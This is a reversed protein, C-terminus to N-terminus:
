PNRAGPRLRLPGRMNLDLIEMSPGASIASQSASSVSRRRASIRRSGIMRRMLSSKGMQRPAQVFITSAFPQGILTLCNHDAAREIYYRSDPRMTGYPPEIPELSPPPSNGLEPAPEPTSSIPGPEPRTKVQKALAAVETVIASLDEDIQAPSGSWIPRGNKPRVNLKSLWDFAQWACAKAIVPFVTVGANSRRELFAPVESGLIFDSTLFNASILLVAVHAQDIAQKIAEAWDAGGDIRDDVWVEILGARELVSLHALLAEKEGEDKHNYSVFVVPKTM